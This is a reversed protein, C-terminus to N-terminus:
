IYLLHCRPDYYVKLEDIRVLVSFDDILGKVKLEVIQVSQDFYLRFVLPFLTMLLNHFGRIETRTGM